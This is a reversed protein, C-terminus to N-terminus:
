NNLINKAIFNKSEINIIQKIKIGIMHTGKLNHFLISSVVQPNDDTLVGSLSEKDFKLGDIIFKFMTVVADMDTLRPAQRLLTIEVNKDFFPLTTNENKIILLCEKIKKHWEKKYNFFVNRMVKNQLVAFIQNVTALSVDYFLLSIHNESVSYDFKASKIEKIFTNFNNHNVKPKKIVKDNFLEIKKSSSEGKLSLKVQLQKAENISLKIAM